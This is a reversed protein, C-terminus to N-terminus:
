FDLQVSVTQSNDSGSSKEITLANFFDDAHDFLKFRTMDIGNTFLYIANDDTSVCIHNSGSSGGISYLDSEAELNKLSQNAKEINFPSDEIGWLVELSLDGNRGELSTKYQPKFIVNESFLVSRKYHRVIHSASSPMPPLATNVEEIALIVNLEELKKEINIM